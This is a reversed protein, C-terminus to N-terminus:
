KIWLLEADAWDRDKGIFNVGLVVIQESDKDYGCEEAFEVANEYTETELLEDTNVVYTEEIDGNMMVDLYQREVIFISYEGNRKDM